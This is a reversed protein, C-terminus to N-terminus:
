GPATMGSRGCAGPTSLEPGLMMGRRLDREVRLGCEAPVVAESDSLRTLVEARDGSTGDDTRYMLGHVASIAAIRAKLEVGGFGPELWIKRNMMSGVRALNNKVRPNM